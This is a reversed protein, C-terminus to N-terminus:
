RGSAEGADNSKVSGPGPKTLAGCVTVRVFADTVGNVKVKVELLVIYETVPPVQGVGIKNLEEPVGEHVTFRTNV